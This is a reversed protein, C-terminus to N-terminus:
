GDIYLDLMPETGPTTLYSEFDVVGSERLVAEDIFFQGTTERSGRTLIVYAADAMIEPKRGLTGLASGAINLAATSIITKPWLANVAIGKGRLEAALGYAMLSMSFKSVTYAAHSEFWKPQINLPPS